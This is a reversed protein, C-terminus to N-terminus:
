GYKYRSYSWHAGKCTAKAIEFMYSNTGGKLINKIRNLM